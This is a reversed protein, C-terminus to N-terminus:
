YCNLFYILLKYLAINAFILPQTIPILKTEEGYSTLLTLFPIKTEQHEHVLSFM